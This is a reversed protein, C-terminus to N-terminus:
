PGIKGRNKGSELTSNDATGWYHADRHARLKRNHSVTNDGFNLDSMVLHGCAGCTSTLLGNPLRRTDFRIRAAQAETLGGPGTQRHKVATLSGSEGM